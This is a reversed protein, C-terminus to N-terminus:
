LIWQRRMSVNLSIKTLYKCNEVCKKPISKMTSPITLENLCDEFRSFCYKNIENVEEPISTKLIKYDKWENSVLM